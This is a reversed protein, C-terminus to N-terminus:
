TESTEDAFVERRESSVTPEDDDREFRGLVTVGDETEKLRERVIEVARALDEPTRGRERLGAPSMIVALMASQPVNTPTALKEINPPQDDVIVATGGHINFEILPIVSPECQAGSFLQSRLTLWSFAHAIQKWEDLVAAISPYKGINFTNCGITGNWDCWGHPGGVWASIIRQNKLYEITEIVMLEKRIGDLAGSVPWGHDGVEVGLVQYMERVMDTDNAIWYLGDTRIIIEAAEEETVPEGSVVLCSWKPLAIEEWWELKTKANIPVVEAPEETNSM